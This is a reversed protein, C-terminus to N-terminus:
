KKNVYKHAIQTGVFGIFGLAISRWYPELIVWVDAPVFQLAFQAALPLGVSFGFIVWFRAEGTLNQFWKFREFLFAIVGGVVGAALLEVVEFLGPVESM